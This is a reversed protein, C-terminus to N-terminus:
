FIELEEVHNKKSGILVLGLWALAKSLLLKHTSQGPSKPHWTLIKAMATKDHVFFKYYPFV